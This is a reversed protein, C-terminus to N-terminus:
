CRRKNISDFGYYSTLVKKLKKKNKKNKNKKYNTFTEFTGIKNSKKFITNMM